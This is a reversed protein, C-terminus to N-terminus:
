KLGKLFGEAAEKKSKSGEIYAFANESFSDIVFPAEMVPLMFNIAASNFRIKMLATYQMSELQKNKMLATLARNSVPVGKENKQLLAFDESNLLYNMLKAAEKPHKCDGKIAYLSAPKLYWGSESAGPTNIFNGLVCNGNQSNVEDLVRSAESCWMFAGAVKKERVASLTFGNAPSYVVNEDVLRRAFEFIEGIEAESINLKGDQSFLKKSFTQEFWALSLFFLHRNSITFVSMGNKNLVKGVMFLEDWTSPIKLGNQDLIKKDYVPIATNFAIPIANLKGNVSGYALDDLTFNYLDIYDSIKNLDYFASGDPSYKMLWDFNIQMVDACEGSLIMDGFNKEYSVWTDYEPLVKISPNLAEFQKLGDLTYEHRTQSGWWSFRVTSVKKGGFNSCAPFFLLCILTFLVFIFSFLKNKRM